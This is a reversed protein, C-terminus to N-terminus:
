TEKGYNMVKELAETLAEEAEQYADMVIEFEEPDGLPLQKWRLELRIDDRARGLVGIARVKVSM